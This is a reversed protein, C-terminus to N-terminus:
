KDHELLLALGIISQDRAPSQPMNALYESAAAPNKDAWGEFAARYVEPQRTAADLSELWTVAAEGDRRAWHGTISGVVWGNQDHSALSGAWAAAAEPDELVFSLSVALLWGATAFHKRTM